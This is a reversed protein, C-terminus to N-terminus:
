WVNIKTKVRSDSNKNKHRLQTKKIENKILISHMVYIFVIQKKRFRAENTNGEALKEM